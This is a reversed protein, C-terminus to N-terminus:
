PQNNHMLTLWDSIFYYSTMDMRFSDMGQLDYAFSFLEIIKVEIQYDNSQTVNAPSVLSQNKNSTLSTVQSLDTSQNTGESSLFLNMFSERRSPSLAGSEISLRVSTAM